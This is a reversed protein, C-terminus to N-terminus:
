AALMSKLKVDPAALAAAAPRAKRSILIEALRIDKAVKSIPGFGSAAVLTGHDNLHFALMADDMERIITTRGEDVLGAIHLTRDYQDSWFWPVANFSEEGGALNRAALNAQDHANKWAELRVRRDNYLPHPFSCCDGAAYIDPDNTRLHADVRIGNEVKLGAKEALTTEPAAGIGAVVADYQVRAGDSLLLLKRDGDNEVAIVSVGIRLDVGASRHKDAIRKAMDVSVGRTLLRSALELLTVEVGLARASAAVELGIFGGGIVVLRGGRPLRSRLALADDFKRLYLVDPVEPVRLRRAASGTALLLRVYRLVRGDVFTVSHAARDITAVEAGSEFIIGHEKLQGERLIFPASPPSEATIVAKSLPPREYPAHAENSVLTVAGVWGADRLAIAARTGATGAGVIIM